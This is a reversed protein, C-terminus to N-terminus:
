SVSAEWAALTQEALALASVEQGFMAAADGDLEIVLRGIQFGGPQFADRQFAGGVTKVDTVSKLSPDKPRFHKAGVALHKLLALHTSDISAGPPWERMHFATVFFDYAAFPDSPDARMRRLDHQLKALMQAQTQLAPSLGKYTM